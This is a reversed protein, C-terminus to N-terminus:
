EVVIVQGRIEGAPNAATHINVYIEGNLLAKLLAPTLPEDDTSRWVGSATNGDFAATITRVVPGTQGRPAHHFHAAIIPSSLDDVTIDFSLEVGRRTGRLVLAGTGSPTTSVTPAPVAQQTDLVAKFGATPYIQGRIEGAPNAATHINVYIEGNLLARVLEPTLPEDDAISWIGSATHGDFEETITRVVPGIEGAPARHFHAAIIPGSLNTVTINFRLKFALFSTPLLTLTGTGTPRTSVDPTPVAQTTNLAATLHTQAQGVSHASLVAVMSIIFSLTIRRM